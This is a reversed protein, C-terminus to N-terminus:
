DPVHGGARKPLAMAVARGTLFDLARALSERAAPTAVLAMHGHGHLALEAVGRLQSSRAPLVINDDASWLNLAPLALREDDARNLEQLWRCRPSPPGYEVGHILDGIATGHHPAAVMLVGACRHPARQAYARILLGGMSHGLLLVRAHGSALALAQVAEDLALLQREFDHYTPQLSIAAHNWGAARLTGALPNWVAGNCLFGHVLLVPPRQADGAVHRPATRWAMDFVFLRLMWLSEVSLTRLWHRGRVARPWDGAWWKLLFGAAALLCMWALLLLGAATGALATDWGTRAWWGALAVALLLQLLLVARLAHRLVSSEATAPLQLQM